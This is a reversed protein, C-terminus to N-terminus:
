TNSMTNNATFLKSRLQKAGNVLQRACEDCLHHQTKVHNPYTKRSRTKPSDPNQPGFKTKGILKQSSGDVIHSNVTGPHILFVHRRLPTSAKTRGENSGRQIGSRPAQTEEVDNYMRCTQTTQKPRETFVIYIAGYALHANTLIETLM